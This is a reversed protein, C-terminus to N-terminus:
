LGSHEDGVNGAKGERVDKKNKKKKKQARVGSTKRMCGGKWACINANRLMVCIGFVPKVHIGDYGYIVGV